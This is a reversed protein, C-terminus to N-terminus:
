SASASNEINVGLSDTTQKALAAQVNLLGGLLAIAIKHAEKRKKKPVIATRLFDFLLCRTDDIGSEEVMWEEIAELSLRKKDAEDDEENVEPSATEPYIAVRILKAMDTFQMTLLKGSLETIEMDLSQQIVKLIKFTGKITYAKKNITLVIKPELVNDDNLFM